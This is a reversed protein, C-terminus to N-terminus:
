RPPTPRVSVLHNRGQLRVLWVRGGPGRGRNGPWMLAQERPLGLWIRRAEDITVARFVVTQGPWVRALSPLDPGIVTAIKPYGGTTQHDALLVLPRGTPPVQVAGAPSGDSVGEGPPAALPDGDLLCARRDSAPSVRWVSSFFRTLAEAGFAQDQPGPVARLVVPAEAGRVPPPEPEAAPCAGRAAARSRKSAEGALGGSGYLIDGPRLPRGALGGIGAPLYTSRSGLVPRCRIGGGGLALYVRPYAGSSLTLVQGPGVELARGSGVPRGDLSARAGPSLAVVAPRLLELELGGYTVEVAAADVPNGAALNAAALSEWDLAGSEPLGEDSYGWRGGDQVTDLPGAALVRAVPSGGDGPRERGERAPALRGLRREEAAAMRVAQAWGLEGRGADAFRVTRGPELLAPRELVPNWLGLPTRGIIQWGGPLTAPYVGTQRGAIGVSGAPVSSRPATRRPTALVPDLGGLYAFGPAFGIMFVRYIPRTHRAVVEEPSMRARSAVEALDPGYEGGYVVPIHITTRDSEMLAPRGDSSSAAQEAAALCVRAMTTYDTELPSYRVLVSNLAPTTERLGPPDLTELLRRTRHVLENTAIDLGQGLEVVLHRDGVPRCLPYERGGAPKAGAGPL